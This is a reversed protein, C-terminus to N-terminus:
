PNAIWNTLGSKIPLATQIDITLIEGTSLQLYAKAGTTGGERGVHIGASPPPAGVSDSTLKVNVSSYTKGDYTISEGTSDFVNSTYATGTEYYVGYYGTTGGFGCVDANPVFTPTLVIGGLVSSKSVVRESPDASVELERLWGDMGRVDDLLTSFSSTALSGGYPTGSSTFVYGATTVSYDTADFLDSSTLSKSSAFNHYYNGDYDENYFPDKIGIIYEQHQTTKDAERLYRGTGIFVWANDYDDVSLAAPATFPADSTYLTTPTYWTTPDEDYVADPDETTTNWDCPNCPVAVKYLKGTFTKPDECTASACYTEGFYIADVSYNLNKDLSVPSNVFAYDEGLEFLWDDTGSTIPEGTALDVVFLKGTETSTGDYTTPGSGFVAFWSDGVKVIAPSSQSLNLGDYSREWMLVPSRPETIDMCIYTPNFYRIDDVGDDDTDFENTWIQKGGLNLGVILFTGWNDDLDGDSYHTNDDLIKADFVKPKMDVYYVHTYDPDALFKLHPLLANPIYAWLESGLATGDVESYTKASSDYIGSTFAHLMGDNAGVYIATERGKFNDYYDQYSSDSYITHYNDPPKAVSVPTSHVIDGLKWVYNNYESDNDSPDERYEDGTFFQGTRNRLSPAGDSDFYDTGRIYEILTDVRTAHDSGLYAFGYDESGNIVGLYPTLATANATDTTFAIVEGAGDFNDYSTEDVVGDDDDDIYTFINRDVTDTMALQKGAEFLPIIEGLDATEYSSALDIGEDTCYEEVTTDCDDPDDYTPHELYRIIRTENTEDDFEYEVIKDLNTVVDPDTDLTLDDDSDERLNGCADVWLSQMFGMWTSDVPIDNGKLTTAFTPKFYAQVLNGEGESNTALVSAATGSASRALIGRIAKGLASQLKAGDSAEFYTDPLGDGDEDWELRDAADDTYLGDPANDSDRDKFGGNKAAQKILERADEDQGFAYVAYLIVNQTDEIDTRIDHTRAWLAVDKLYDTGGSAYECGSYPYAENCDGSVEPGVFDNAAAIGDAYDRVDDVRSDKTSAGDTILLVFNKACYASGDFPDDGVTKPNNYYNLSEDIAEQKFYKVATYYAEALPTWTDAATNQFDNIFNETVGDAIPNSIVGGNGNNQADDGNNNFWLNGWRASNGYRQLVGVTTLGNGDLDAFDNPEEEAIKEVVISFTGQSVNSSNYVTFNGGDVYYTYDGAFQTIGSTGTGDYEKKYSRSSGSNEGTLKQTGTTTRPNALGGMLVKRAVDIRRMTIWNLFNGDWPGSDDRSFISNAYSYNSDPDFYGYYEKCGDFVVHLVPANSSGSDYARADRKGTGTIKFGISSGAVWGNRDVIAQILSTLDETQYTSGSTWAEVDNWEVTTSLYSRSSIDITGTTYTGADDTDEVSIILDTDAQPTSSNAYATFEIYAETVVANKPIQVNYFRLGVVSPGYGVNSADVYFNGLDLDSDNYYTNDSSNDAEEEADDSSQYVSMDASGCAYGDASTLSGASTFVGYAPYNMSGSNDMMIMINPPIESSMFLPYSTYDAIAPEAASAATFGAISVMLAALIAVIINKVSNM